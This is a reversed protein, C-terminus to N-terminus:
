DAMSLIVMTPGASPAATPQYSDPPGTLARNIQTRTDPDPIHELIYYHILDLWDSAALQHQHIGRALCWGNFFTESPTAGM